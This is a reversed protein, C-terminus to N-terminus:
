RRPRHAPEGSWRNQNYASPALCQYISLKVLHREARSNGGPMGRTIWKDIGPGVLEFLQRCGKQDFPYTASKNVEWSFKEKLFVRWNILALIPNKLGSTLSTDPPSFPGSPVPYKSISLKHCSGNRERSIWCINSLPRIPPTLLEPSCSRLSLPPCQGLFVRDWLGKEQCVM